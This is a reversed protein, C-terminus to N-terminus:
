LAVNGYLKLANVVCDWTSTTEGFPTYANTGVTAGTGDTLVTSSGLHDAAFYRGDRALPQDLYPGQLTQNTATSTTRGRARAVCM